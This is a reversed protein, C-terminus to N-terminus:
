IQFESLETQRSLGRSTIVRSPIRHKLKRKVASLAHRNRYATM